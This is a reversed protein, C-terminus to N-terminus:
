KTSPCQNRNRLNVLIRSILQMVVASAVLSRRFDRIQDIRLMHFLLFLSLHNNSLHKCIKSTWRCPCTLLPPDWQSTPSSYSVRKKSPAKLLSDSNPWRLTLKKSIKKAVLPFWTAKQTKISSNSIKQSPTASPRSLRHTFVRTTM